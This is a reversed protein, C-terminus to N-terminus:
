TTWLSTLRMFDDSQYKKRLGRYLLQKYTHQSGLMKNRNLVDM